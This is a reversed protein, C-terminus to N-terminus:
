GHGVLADAVIVQGLAIGGDGPPVEGHRFVELDALGAAIGHALRRNHFAGGTLVIPLAGHASIAARVRDV